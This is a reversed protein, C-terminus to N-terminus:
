HLVWSMCIVLIHLPYSQLKFFFQNIVENPKVTIRFFDLSPSRTVGKIENGSEM